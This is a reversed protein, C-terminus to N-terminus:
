ESLKSLFDAFSCERYQDAAGGTPDLKLVAQAAKWAIKMLEKATAYELKEPTINLLSSHAVGECMKALIQNRIHTSLVIRKDPDYCKVYYAVNQATCGFVNAVQGYSMRSLVMALVRRATEPIGSMDPVEEYLDPMPPYRSNVAEDLAPHPAHDSESHEPM